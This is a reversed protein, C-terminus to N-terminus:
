FTATVGAIVRRGIVSGGYIHFRKQDLVNTAIAHVRLNNSVQYGANLNVTQSWDVFGSFVGAAWDFATQRRVTVGLDLGQAGAYQVSLSGKHKPTNPLVKDGAITGEPPDFDFFTYSGEVRLEDTLLYGASFEVGQEKVKGANAYSVVIARGEGPVTALLRTNVLQANLQNYGGRLQPIAARLPHSAPLGRSALYADVDTLTQPINTGGDTLLYVPYDPNVGPLLDTVFNTLRNHYLDLSAYLRNTLNGKYGLEWGTVKEVDLAANGLALPRTLPNFNWPLDVPTPPLNPDAGFNTRITAFYGELNTELTRPGSTRGPPEVRLYFESYNPTQFARNVSVRVSHRENPSYVLAGKPSFQSSFLDGDDFRAAVVARLPAVIKYEVQGYGSYYSDSRNDDSLAMLTTDTDLMYQRFSAGIVFRGLERAFGRNYQAEVHFISSHEELGRGTGLAYQPERTDRGTYWAMVNYRPAAWAVRAWPKLTKTVQVRGIGTVFVENEVHSAGGEVSGVAGNDAYYDVRAAGYTNVLDDRERVAVRTTGVTDQGNLPRVEPAVPTIPGDTGESYEARFDSSDRATRSRSWTDSRNYGVNVRYGLRGASLVGARRLDGRFTSLEGGALTLKTGAVERATPTSINVVGAFANAGYLASGPGRVLEIRGIDELPVALGNWEQAGLFAIALDRGDQMVLIRRNLTSNFGRANVNFDNVGSQVLDVGPATGLALPVQGTVSVARAVTPDIVAVAAPAEVVREPARSPAEVVVEGLTVPQAELAVDISVSGATVQVDAQQARNGLWRFLLTQPGDPVRQLVFRGDPGTVAGVAADKVTVAVGALRSGDSRRTVTGTVTGTGREQAAAPVAVGALLSSVLALQFLHTSM